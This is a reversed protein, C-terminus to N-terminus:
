IDIKNVANGYHQKIHKEKPQIEQFGILRDLSKIMNMQIKQCSYNMPINYVEMLIGFHRSTERHHELQETHEITALRIWGNYLKEDTILTFNKTAVSSLSHPSMKENPTEFHYIRISDNRRWEYPKM